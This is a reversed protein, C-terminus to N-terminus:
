QIQMKDGKVNGGFRGVSSPLDVPCKRRDKCKYMVSTKARVMRGEARWDTRKYDWLMELPGRGSMLDKSGIEKRHKDTKDGLRLAAVILLM